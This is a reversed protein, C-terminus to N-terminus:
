LGEASLMQGIGEGAFVAPEWIGSWDPLKAFAAVRENVPEPAPGCGIAALLTAIVGAMTLRVRGSPMTSEGPTHIM